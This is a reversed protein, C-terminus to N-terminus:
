EQFGGSDRQGARCSVHLEKALRRGENELRAAELSEVAMEAAAHDHVHTAM